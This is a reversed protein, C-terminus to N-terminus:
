RQTVATATPSPAPTRLRARSTTPSPLTPAKVEKIKAKGTALEPLAKLERASLLPSNKEAEAQAAAKDAAAAAAAVAAAQDLCKDCVTVARGLPRGCRGCFGAEVLQKEKKGATNGETLPGKFPKKRKPGMHATSHSLPGVSTAGRFTAGRGGARVARGRHANAARHGALWLHAGPVDLGGAGGALRGAAGTCMPALRPSSLIAPRACPCMFSVSLNFPTLTRAQLLLLDPPHAPPRPTCAPGSGGRAWRCGRWSRWGPSPRPGSPSSSPPPRWPRPPRAPPCPPCPSPPPHETM